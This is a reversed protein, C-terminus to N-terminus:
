LELAGDANPCLTETVCGCVFSACILETVEDNSEDMCDKAAQCLGQLNKFGFCEKNDLNHHSLETLIEDVYKRDVYNFDHKKGYEIEKETRERENKLKDICKQLLSKCKEKTNHEEESYAGLYNASMTGARSVVHCSESSRVKLISKIVKAKYM